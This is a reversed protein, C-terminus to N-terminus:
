PALQGKGAAGTAPNGGSPVQTSVYSFTTNASAGLDTIAGICVAIILALLIAYEVATPGDESNLFHHLRRAFRPFPFRTFM